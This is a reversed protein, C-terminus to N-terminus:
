NLSNFYLTNDETEGVMDMYLKELIDMENKAVITHKAMAFEAIKTNMMISFIPVLIFCPMYFFNLKKPTIKVGNRKLMDFCERIALIMKKLTKHSKALEYNNSNFKYLAKGIPVIVAVHTKQWQEMNNNKSPSFGAKKFIHLLKKLRDTEKGNIEGFTTSQFIKVFGKGIFYSVIGDKREGGASPFGIMVRNYGIADIYKQYGCPNNVVFVINSTKNKSLIPLIDDIQTNQVTVIIYDYIDNEKLNNIVSVKIRELNGNIANKLILGESKLEEFRKGRALLTIDVGSLALKGGFISGIAGAGYILVKPNEIKNVSM